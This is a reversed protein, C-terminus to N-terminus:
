YLGNDEPAYPIPTFGIEQLMTNIIDLGLSAVDKYILSSSIGLPEKCIHHHGLWCDAMDHCTGREYFYTRVFHRPMKLVFPYPLSAISLYDKLRKLNFDESDGKESLFFYFESPSFRLMAPNIRKALYMKVRKFNDRIEEALSELIDSPPLIREERYIHSLKDNIIEYEDRAFESFRYPISNRPRYAFSFQMCLYTYIM